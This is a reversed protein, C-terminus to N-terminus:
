ISGGLELGVALWDAGDEVRYDLKASVMHEQQFPNARRTVTEAPLGPGERLTLALDTAGFVRDSPNYQHILQATM